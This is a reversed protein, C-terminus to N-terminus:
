AKSFKTCVRGVVLNLVVATSSYPRVRCYSLLGYEQLINEAVEAFCTWLIVKKMLKQNRVMCAGRARSFFDM